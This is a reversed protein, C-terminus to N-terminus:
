SHDGQADGALEGVDSHASGVGDQEDDVELGADEVDDGSFEESVTVM